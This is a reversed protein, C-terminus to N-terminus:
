RVRAWRADGVVEYVENAVGADDLEYIKTREGGDQPVFLFSRGDINATRWGYSSAAVDEYPEATGREVDIRWLHFNTFEYIQDLVAVDPEGSFDGDLEEHHLVDALGWGDRVYRFNNVYRGDTLETLDTTFDEDLTRDANIRAVCPAPGADFLAFFPLYDWSSFYTRGQEDQSPVALGPCPGEIVSVEEHTDPDYVAIPSTSGFEYWDEDHYFFPQMVPGDEYRLGTRNGGVELTFGDVEPVLASDEMTGVIEMTSPNWVIRKYGDFPMYMTEDNVMYQYFFNANDSLPYNAFSLRSDQVWRLDDTISYRTIVPEEGSSIYLYGGLTASNAVGPQELAEDLSFTPEDLSNSLAMYVKRGGDADYITTTLVYVPLEEPPEPEGEGTGESSDDPSDGPTEPPLLVVADDSSCAALFMPIALLSATFRFDRM